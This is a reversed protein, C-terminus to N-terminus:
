SNEADRVLERFDSEKLIRMTQGKGILQEAKIHKRSKDKDSALKRIDQDGVVLLSTRTTVNDDVTCGVSAALAAAERRLITLAGTFVIVDGYLAGEVNGERTIKGTTSNPDIPQGVRKLWSEVDLETKDMAALLIQGCAKADALANHHKFQHGIKNCVNALGYGGSLEIWARRSVRVTDLWTTKLAPLEHISIARNISLRDFHGHSVSIANNLFGRLDSAVESFTPSNAVDDGTIGHIAINIESFYDEPNILSDWKDVLKRDTYRAIGIHCISAMDSNATEVDIAVFKEPPFRVEPHKNRMKRQYERTSAPLQSRPSVDESRGKATAYGRTQTTVSQVVPDDDFISGDNTRSPNM